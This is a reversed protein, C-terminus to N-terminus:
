REQRGERRWGGDDGRRSEAAEEEEEDGGKRERKEGDKRQEGRAQEEEIQNSWGDGGDNRCVEACFSQRMREGGLFFWDIRAWSPTKRFASGGV